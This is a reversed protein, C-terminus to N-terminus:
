VVGSRLDNLSALPNKVINYWKSISPENGQTVKNTTSITTQTFQLRPIFFRASVFDLFFGFFDFALSMANRFDFYSHTTTLM